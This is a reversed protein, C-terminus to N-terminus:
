IIGFTNTTFFVKWLDINRHFGDEVIIKDIKYDAYKDKFANFGKFNNRIQIEIIEKKQCFENVCKYTHVQEYANQGVEIFESFYIWGPSSKETQYYPQTLNRSHNMWIICRM